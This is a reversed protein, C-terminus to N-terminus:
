AQLGFDRDWAIAIRLQELLQEDGRCHVSAICDSHVPRGVVFAPAAPAMQRLHLGVAIEAVAAILHHIASRRRPNAIAAATNASSWSAFHITVPGSPM